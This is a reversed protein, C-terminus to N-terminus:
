GVVCLTMSEGDKLEIKKKKKKKRRGHVYGWHERFGFSAILLVFGLPEPLGKTRWIASNICEARCRTGLICTWQRRGHFNPQHRLRASHCHAQETIMKLCSSDYVFFLQRTGDGKDFPTFFASCTCHVDNIRLISFSAATLTRVPDGRFLLNQM